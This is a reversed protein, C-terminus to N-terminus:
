VLPLTLALISPRPLHLVAAGRPLFPAVAAGANVLTPYCAALGVKKAYKKIHTELAVKARSLAQGIKEREKRLSGMLKEIAGVTGPRAVLLGPIVSGTGM